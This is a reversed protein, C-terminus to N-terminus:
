KNTGVQGESGSNAELRDPIWGIGQALHEGLKQKPLALPSATLSCSIWLVTVDPETTRLSEERRYVFSRFVPERLGGEGM